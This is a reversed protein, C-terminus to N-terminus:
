SSPQKRSLEIIEQRLKKNEEELAAILAAQEYEQTEDPINETLQSSQSRVEELEKRTESLFSELDNYALSLSQLEGDKDVIVQKLEEIETLANELNSKMALIDPHDKAITNEAKEIELAQIKEQLMEIISPYYSFLRRGGNNVIHKAKINNWHEPKTINLKKALKDLFLRHNKKDKWFNFPVYKRNFKNWTHEPYVSSLLEFFSSFQNLICTGGADIFRKKTINNWDDLTKINLKKGISEMFQKRNEDNWEDTRIKNQSLISNWLLPYESVIFDGLTNYERYIGSGGEAIIDKQTINKWDNPSLINYKDILYNIFEKRNKAEKWYNNPLKHNRSFLPHFEKEPYITNIMETFNKYQRQLGSGGHKKIHNWNVNKWDNDNKIEYTQVIRDLFKRQNKRCKWHNSPYKGILFPDWAKEPKVEKILNLISGYHRLLEKGGRKSFYTRSEKSWECVNWKREYEDVFEKGNERNHWYGYPKKIQSSYQRCIM